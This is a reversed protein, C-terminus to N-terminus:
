PLAGLLPQSREFWMKIRATVTGLTEETAAGVLDGFRLTSVSRLAECMAWSPRQLGGDDAVPIHHALGRDRSTLPVVVAHKIPMGNYLDSSVVLCPRVSRQENAITPNLDVTWIQGQQARVPKM